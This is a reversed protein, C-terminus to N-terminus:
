NETRRRVLEAVRIVAERELGPRLEDFFAAPWNKWAQLIEDELTIEPAAEVLEVDQHNFCIGIGQPGTPLEVVLPVRRDYDASTVPGIQGLHKGPYNVRM